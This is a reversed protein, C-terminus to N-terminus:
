FLKKLDNIKNIPFNQKTQMPHFLGLNLKIESTKIADSLNPKVLEWKVSLRHLHNGNWYDESSNREVLKYKSKETISALGVIGKQSSFGVIIDGPIFSNLIQYGRDDLRGDFGASIFEKQIMLDWNIQDSSGINFWYANPNRFDQDLFKLKRSKDSLQDFAVSFSIYEKDNIQYIQYKICKFPIGKSSLWEGMSFLSQDFSRAVLIISQSQNLSNIEISNELFSNICDELNENTRNKFSTSFRNILQQGRYKSLDSLYQLAQTEVGLKAQDKKLEVIVINGFKDLCVIDARKKEKTRIETGIILLDEAFIRYNILNSNENDSILNELRLERDISYSEMSKFKENEIEFIM